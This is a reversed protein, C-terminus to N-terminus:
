DSVDPELLRLLEAPREIIHDPATRELRERSHWGWTVAVTVVGAEQAERIDGTTDTIFYTHATDKEWEKMAHAIKDVKSVMFDAGLIDRFCRYCEYKSLIREITTGSNSSVILLVNDRSFAELVPFLEEFPRIKDYDLKPAVVKSAKGLADLDIGQKRLSLYFNDDYLSLFDERTEAITFGIEESYLRTLEEYFAISDVIVGDFDFLLLKEAM